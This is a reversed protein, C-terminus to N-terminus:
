TARRRGTEKRRYGLVEDIIRIENSVNAPDLNEKGALEQRRCYEEPGSFVVRCQYWRTTASKLKHIHMLKFGAELYQRTMERRVREPIRGNTVADISYSKRKHAFMRIRGMNDIDLRRVGMLARVTAAMALTHTGNATVRWARDDSHDRNFGVGIFEHLSRALTAMDMDPRRFRSCRPMFKGTYSAVVKQLGGIINRAVVMQNGIPQPKNLSYGSEQVIDKVLKKTNPIGAQIREHMSRCGPLDWCRKFEEFLKAAEADERLVLDLMALCLLLPKIGDPLYAFGTTSIESDKM